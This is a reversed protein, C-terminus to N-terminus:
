FDSENIQFHNEQSLTLDPSYSTYIVNKRKNMKPTEYPGKGRLRVSDLFESDRRDTRNRKRNKAGILSGFHYDIWDIEEHISKEEAQAIGRM